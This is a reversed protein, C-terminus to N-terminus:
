CFARCNIFLLMAFCFRNMFLSINYLWANFPIHKETLVLVIAYPSVGNIDSLLIQTFVNSHRIYLISFKTDESRNKYFIHIHSWADKWWDVSWDM